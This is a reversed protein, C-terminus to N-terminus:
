HKDMTTHFRTTDEALWTDAHPEIHFTDGGGQYGAVLVPYARDASIVPVTGERGERDM